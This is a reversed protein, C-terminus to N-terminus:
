IFSNILTYILGDFSTHLKNYVIYKNFENSFIINYRYFDKLIHEMNLTPIWHIDRIVLDLKYVANKRIYYDIYSIGDINLLKPSSFPYRDDVIIIMDNIEYRLINIQKVHNYKKQLRDFEKNLRNKYFHQHTSYSNIMM